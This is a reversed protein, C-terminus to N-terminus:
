RDQAQFQAHDTEEPPGGWGDPHLSGNQRVGYQPLAPSKAFQPRM